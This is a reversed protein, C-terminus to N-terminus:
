QALKGSSGREERQWLAFLDRAGHIVALVYAENETVQYILRYRGLLLERVAPEGIEPVVRGREAMSGLSRAADRVHRVFTAAYSPSDKAIYSAISEVDSWATATWRM